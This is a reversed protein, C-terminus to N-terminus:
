RRFTSFRPSEAGPLEVLNAPATYQADYPVNGRRDWKVFVFGTRSFAFVVGDGCDPHPNNESANDPAYRVRDGKKLSKRNKM